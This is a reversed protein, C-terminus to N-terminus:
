TFCKLLMNVPAKVVYRGCKGVINLFHQLAGKIERFPWKSSFMRVVLCASKCLIFALIELSYSRHLANLSSIGAKLLM